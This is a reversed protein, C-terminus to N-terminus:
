TGTGNSPVTPWTVIEPDPTNAPLDRLEQRYTAWAAKNTVTQTTDTAQTYDSSILLNSRMERLIASYDVRSDDIDWEQTYVGNVETVAGKSISRGAIMDPMISTEVAAYGLDALTEPSPQSTVSIGKMKIKHTTEQTAINIFM